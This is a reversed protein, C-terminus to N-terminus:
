SQAEQRQHWLKRRSLRASPSLSQPHTRTRVTVEEDVDTFITERVNHESGDDDGVLMGLELDVHDTMTDEDDPTSDHNDEVVSNPSSPTPELVNVLSPVRSHPPHRGGEHHHHHDQTPPLGILHRKSAHKLTTLAARRGPPYNPADPFVLKRTSILQAFHLVQFEEAVDIGDLSLYATFPDELIELGEFLASLGVATIIGFAIGIFLSHTGRAVQAYAPAYFPPLILIFIRAFSRLAQPTRYMKVMRLQELNNSLFREYQRMRSIEGSPLGIKKIRESYFTLRTM